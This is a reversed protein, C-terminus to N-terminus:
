FFKEIFLFYNLGKLNRRLLFALQNELSNEAFLIENSYMRYFIKSKRNSSM